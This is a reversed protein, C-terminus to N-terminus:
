KSVQFQFMLMELTTQIDFTVYDFEIEQCGRSKKELLEDLGINVQFIPIKRGRYM